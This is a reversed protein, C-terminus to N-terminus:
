VVYDDREMLRLEEEILKRIEDPMEFERELMELRKLVTNRDRPTVTLDLMEDYLEMLDSSEKVHGLFPIRGKWKAWFEKRKIGGWRKGLFGKEGRMLDRRKERSSEDLRTQEEPSPAYYLGRRDLDKLEELLDPISKEDTVRGKLHGDILATTGHIASVVVIKPRKEERIIEAVKKFDKAGKLCSGGFKMVKM